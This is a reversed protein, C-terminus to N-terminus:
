SEKIDLRPVLRDTAPRATPGHRSEALPEAPRDIEFVPRRKALREVPQGPQETPDAALAVAVDWRGRDADEGAIDVV